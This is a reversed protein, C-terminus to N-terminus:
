MKDSLRILKNKTEIHVLQVIALMCLFSITFSGGYSLLPLPVGTLPLIGLIGGLNFIVHLSLYILGGFALFKGRTTNAKRSIRYIRFMMWAYLIIIFAGMKFGNEEVIITFISDTHPDPIYSYKQQSKGIGLGNFGGSNIAILGNCVQYGNNSADSLM